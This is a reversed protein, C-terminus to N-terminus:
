RRATVVWVAARQRLGEETMAASVAQRLDTLAAAQQEPTAKALMLRGFLDRQYFDVVDDASGPGGVLLTTEVGEVQVDSWGATSLVSRVHDADAFSFPGPAGPPPLEPMGLHPVLAGVPTMVWENLPAAQWAVFALRGDAATASRLNSFAAVPDDFFMVGFRSVLADYTEDAFDHVQVDAEVFSVNATDGARQRARRILPGSVDAGVVRGTAGVIEAAQMTLQGSGCGVDLVAEGARLGAADLALRGLHELMADYREPTVVWADSEPSNWLQVMESNPM